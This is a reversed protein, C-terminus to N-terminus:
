RGAMLRERTCWPLANAKIPQKRSVQEADMAGIRGSIVNAIHPISCNFIHALEKYKLGESKRLSRISIRDEQRLKSLSRGLRRLLDTVM